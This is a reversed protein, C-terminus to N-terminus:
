KLIYCFCGKGFLFSNSAVQHNYISTTGLMVNWCLAKSIYAFYIFDAQTNEYHSSLFAYKSAAWKWIWIIATCIFDTVTDYITIGQWKSQFFIMRNSHCVYEAGPIQWGRILFSLRCADRPVGPQRWCSVYWWRDQGPCQAPRGPGSVARRAGPCHIPPRMAGAPLRFLSCVHSITLDEQLFHPLCVVCVYM